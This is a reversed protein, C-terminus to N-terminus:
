HRAIGGRPMRIALQESISDFTLRETLEMILGGDAANSPAARRPAARNRDTRDPLNFTL